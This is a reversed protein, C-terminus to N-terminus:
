PGPSAQGGISGAAEAGVEWRVIPADRWLNELRYFEREEQNFVHVVFDVYDLLVWKAAVEGERRVPRVGSAKLAAVIEDALTKVQRDSTGSCIVFYDTITILERVDLVVVAQSQKDAATRAALMAMERSDPLAVSPDRPDIVM